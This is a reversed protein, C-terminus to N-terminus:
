AREELGAATRVEALERLAEVILRKVLAEHEGPLGALVARRPVALLSTKVAGAIAQQVVAAESARILEGKAQRLKVQTLLRQVRALAARETTLDLTPKSKAQRDERWALIAAVDYRPAGRKGPAPGPAGKELLRDLAKASPLGLAEIAEARTVLKATGRSM